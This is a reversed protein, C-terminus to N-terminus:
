EPQTQEETQKLTEATKLLAERFEKLSAVDLGLDFWHELVKVSSTGEITQRINDSVPNEFRKEV